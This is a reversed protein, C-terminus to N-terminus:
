WWGHIWQQSKKPLKEVAKSWGGSGCIEVLRGPILPSVGRFNGRGLRQCLGFDRFIATQGGLDSNKTWLWLPRLKLHSKKLYNPTSHTKTNTKQYVYIYIYSCSRKCKSQHFSWTAYLLTRPFTPKVQLVLDFRSPPVGFVLYTKIDMM